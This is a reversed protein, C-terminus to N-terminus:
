KTKKRLEVQAATQRTGDNLEMVFGLSEIARAAGSSFDGARIRMSAPNVPQGSWATGLSTAVQNLQYIKVMQMFKRVTAKSKNAEAVAWDIPSGFASNKPDLASFEQPLTLEATTMELAVLSGGTETFLLDIHVDKSTPGNVIKSGGPLAIDALNVNPLAGKPGVDRDSTHITAGGILIGAVQRVENARGVVVEWQGHELPRGQQLLAVDFRLKDVKAVYLARQIPDEFKGTGVRAELLKVFAEGNMGALPNLGPIIDTSIDALLETVNQPLTVRPDNLGSLVRLREARKDKATSQFWTLWGGPMTQIQRLLGRTARLDMDAPLELGRAKLDRIGNILIASNKPMLDDAILYKAGSSVKPSNSIEHYDAFLKPLTKPDTTLFLRHVASYPIGNELRVADAVGRAADISWGPNISSAHTVFLSLAALVTHDPYDLPLKAELEPNIRALTDRMNTLEAGSLHTTRELASATATTPADSKGAHLLRPSAVPAGSLLFRTRGMPDTIRRLSPTGEVKFGKETYRTVLADVKATSKSPDYVYTNSDGVRSLEIVSEPAPLAKVVPDAATPTASLPFSAAKADATASASMKEIAAFDTASIVGGDKLVQAVARAEDILRSRETRIAEFDAKSLTGTDVKQRLTQYLAENASNLNELRTNAAAELKPKAIAQFGHHMGAILLYTVATQTLFSAVDSPWQGTEIRGMTASVAAVGTFGILHGMLLQRVPSGGALPEALKGVGKLAGMFALNTAASKVAGMGTIEKGLLIRQMTLESATFVGVEFLTSVSAITRATRALAITESIAAMRVALAAGETVLAAILTIALNVLLDLKARDKIKELVTNLSQEYGATKAMFGDYDLTQWYNALETRMGVLTGTMSERFSKSGVDAKVMVQHISLNSAYLMFIAARFGFLSTAKSLRSAEVLDNAGPMTEASEPVRATVTFQPTGFPSAYAGFTNSVLKFGLNSDLRPVSDELTSRMVFFFSEDLGNNGPYAKNGQEFWKLYSEYSTRTREFKRKAIVLDFQEFKLDVMDLQAQYGAALGNSASGFTSSTISLWTEIYEHRLDFLAGREDTNKSADIGLLDDLAVANAHLIQTREQIKAGADAAITMANAMDQLSALKAAPSYSLHAHETEERNEATYYRKTEKGQTDVDKIDGKQNLGAIIGTLRKTDAEEWQDYIPGLRVARELQEAESRIIQLASFIRPTTSAMGLAGFAEWGNERAMKRLAAYNAKHKQGEPTAEMELLDAVIRAALNAQLADNGTIKRQLYAICWKGDGQHLWRQYLGEAMGSGMEGLSHDAFFARAYLLFDYVRYADVSLWEQLESTAFNHLDFDKVPDGMLLQVLKKTADANAPGAKIAFDVIIEVAALRQAGGSHLELMKIATVLADQDNTTVIHTKSAVRKPDDYLTHRGAFASVRPRRGALVAAAARDAQWEAMESNPMAPLADGVNGGRYQAIHAFEHAITARGERTNPAFVGHAFGIEDGSAYARAGAAGAREAAFADTRLRVGGFDGGFSAAMSQKITPAERPESPRASDDDAPPGSPPGSPPIRQPTAISAPPQPSLLPNGTPSLQGLLALMGSNGLRQAMASGTSEGGAHEAGSADAKTRETRAPSKDDASRDSRAPGDGSM